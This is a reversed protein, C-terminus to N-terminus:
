IRRRILHKSEAFSVIMEEYNAFDVVERLFFTLAMEQSIRLAKRTLLQWLLSRYKSMFRMLTQAISIKNM